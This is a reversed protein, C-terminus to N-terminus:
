NDRGYKANFADVIVQCPALKEDESGVIWDQKDKHKKVAPGCINTDPYIHSSDFEFWVRNDEGPTIYCNADGFMKYLQRYSANYIIM